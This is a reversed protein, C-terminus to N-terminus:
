TMGDIRLHVVALEVGGSAGPRLVLWLGAFIQLFARRSMLGSEARM